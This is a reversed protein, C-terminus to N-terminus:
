FFDVCIQMFGAYRNANDLSTLSLLGQRGRIMETISKNRAFEGIGCGRLVGSFWIYKKQINAIFSNSLYICMNVYRM